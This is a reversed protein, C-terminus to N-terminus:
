AGLAMLFSKKYNRLIQAQQTELQLLYCLGFSLHLQKILVNM